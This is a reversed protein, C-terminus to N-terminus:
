GVASPSPCAAPRSGVRQATAQALGPAAPARVQAIPLRPVWPKPAGPLRTGGHAYEHIPATTFVVIAKKEGAVPSSRPRRHGPRREACDTGGPLGRLVARKASRKDTTFAACRCPRRSVTSQWWTTTGRL